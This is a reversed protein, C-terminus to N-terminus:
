CIAEILMDLMDYLPLVASGRKRRPPTEEEPPEGPRGPTIEAHIGQSLFPGTPVSGRSETM